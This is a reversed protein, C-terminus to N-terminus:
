DKLEKKHLIFVGQEYLIIIGIELYSGRLYWVIAFLVNIWLLTKCKAKIAEKKRGIYYEDYPAYVAYIFNIALMSFIQFNREMIVYKALIVPFLVIIGSIVFCMGESKAHRGGSQKRIICCVLTAFLVEKGKGIAIGIFMYVLLKIISSFFLEMGYSIVIMEEKSYNRKKNMYSIIQESIKKM